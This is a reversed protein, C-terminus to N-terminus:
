ALEPKEIVIVEIRPECSYFKQAIIDVVQSDDKFIVTNLADLVGKLYNDTDPKTTPRILGEEAMMRRKKSFSKPIERFVYLTLACTKTFPEFREPRYFLPQIEDQIKRKYDKSNKPDYATVFNGRKAFRPRGQPVPHGPVIIKVTRLGYEATYSVSM